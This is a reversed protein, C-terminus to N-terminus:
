LLPWLKGNTVNEPKWVDPVNTTPRTVNEVIAMQKTAFVQCPPKCQCQCQCQNRIGSMTTQMPMGAERHWVWDLNQWRQFLDILVIEEVFPAIHHVEATPYLLTIKILPFWYLCMELPNQQSFKNPKRGSFVNATQEMTQSPARESTLRQALFSKKIGKKM